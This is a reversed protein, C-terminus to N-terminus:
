PFILLTNAPGYERPADRRRLGNRNFFIIGSLVRRDDVRPKGHNKPFLPQLLAMHEDTLWYLERMDMRRVSGSSIPRIALFVAAQELSLLSEDDTM